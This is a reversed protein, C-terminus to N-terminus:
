HEYVASPYICQRSLQDITHRVAVLNSGKLSHRAEGQGTHRTNVNEHNLINTLQQRCLKTVFYHLYPIKFAVHLDRPPTRRLLNGTTHLVKNQLRQLKLLYSDATFKWAPCAYTQTSGILAKYLTLETGVSLLGSLVSPNQIVSLM